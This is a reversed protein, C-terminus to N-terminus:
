CKLGMLELKALNLEVILNPIIEEGVTKIDVKYKDHTNDPWYVNSPTDYVWIQDDFALDNSSEYYQLRAECDRIKCHIETDVFQITKLM